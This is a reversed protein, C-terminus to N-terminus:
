CLPARKGIAGGQKQKPLVQSGDSVAHMIRTHNTLINSAVLSRPVIRRHSSRQEVAARCAAAHQSNAILPVGDVDNRAELGMRQFRDAFQDFVGDVGLGFLNFDRAAADLSLNIQFDGIATGADLGVGIPLWIKGADCGM